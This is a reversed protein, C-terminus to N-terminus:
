YQGCPKIVEKRKNKKEEQYDINSKVNSADSLNSDGCGGIMTIILSLLVVKLIRM